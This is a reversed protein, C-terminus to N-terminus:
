ADIIWKRITAIVESNKEIHVSHNADAFVHLQANPIRAAMLRSQSPPCIWDQEGVIILTKATIRQLSERYDFYKEEESYLENHSEAFYVTKLTAALAADADFTESYLPAAAHMVLQFEADSEFSGFIKNKLQNVSLSPAKHIRSELVQIAEVEDKRTLMPNTLNQSESGGFSGGCLVFHDFNGTFHMRMAEIDDVLQNFSYPRTRSSQGHGRYDFSLIRHTDKLPLYARHDGEHSGFGRGGHLTILLPKTADNDSIAYALCAGNIDIFAVM